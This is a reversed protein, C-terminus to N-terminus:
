RADSTAERPSDDERAAPGTRYARRLEANAVSQWRRAGDFTATLSCSAHLHGALEHHTVPVGADRWRDVLLQGTPRLEDYQATLVLTPPVGSPDPADAPSVFEDLGDPDGLYAGLLTEVSASIDRAREPLDAPLETFEFQEPRLSGAPVELFVHRPAPVTARGAAITLATSAAITAGASNGGLGLRDTDVGLEAAHRHLHTLAALADDRGVPYPHEPALGYALSFIQLGTAAARHGVLSDNVLERPSGFLFGGGHLFLQTPLAETAPVDRRRYRRLYSTRGGSVPLELETIEVREDVPLCFEAAYRDALERRAPRQEAPTPADLGTIQRELEALRRLWDAIAPDLSPATRADPEDPAAVHDENSDTREAGAVPEVGSSVDDDFFKSSLLM